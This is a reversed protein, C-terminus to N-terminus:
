EPQEQTRCDVGGNQKLYETTPAFYTKDIGAQEFYKEVAQNLEPYGSDNTIFFTKGNKGTGGVGNTYNINVGALAEENPTLVDNSWSTDDPVGNIFSPLKVVEYGDKKLAEEAQKRIAATKQSIDELKTILATKTEDSMGAIQTNKLIKISEEYDPVAMQGNHLPHYLMDIHFDYQPLFTVDELKLGLDQAIQQKAKEVNQPTNELGMAILSYGISEAGVVAGPSGDAKCTNLVNGGELYSKAEVISGDHPMRQAVDRAHLRANGQVGKSINARHQIIADIDKDEEGQPFHRELNEVAKASPVMIKGDARRIAYDEFWDADRTGFIKRM